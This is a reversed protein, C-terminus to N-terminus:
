DKHFYWYPGSGADPDGEEIQVLRYGESEMNNCASTLMKQYTGSDSAKWNMEENNLVVYPM